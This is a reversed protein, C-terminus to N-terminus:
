AFANKPQEVTDLLSDRWSANRIHQISFDYSKRRRLLELLRGNLMEIALVDMDGELATWWSSPLKARFRSLKRIVAATSWLWISGTRGEFRDLHGSQAHRYPDLGVSGAGFGRMRRRLWHWRLRHSPIFHSLQLRPEFRLRWGALRLALCLEEDEGTGLSGGERGVLLHRFGRSVLGEWASKRVTLGAGWLFGRSWTIDGAVDGQPGIAYKSQVQEFWTPPETEPVALSVGGCAGINSSNSMIEFVCEIWDDAVWNDDDVFSVSEFQASKFGRERAFALGLRPESVVRLQAPPNKPWVSHAVQATMDMSANDVIIVEWPKVTTM